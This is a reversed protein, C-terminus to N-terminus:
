IRPVELNEKVEIVLFDLERRQIFAQGGGFDPLVLFFGLREL